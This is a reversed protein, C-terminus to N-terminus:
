RVGGDFVNYNPMFDFGIYKHKNGFKTSCTGPQRDCGAYAILSMSSTLGVFPYDLIATAGIQSVIYRTEGTHPNFIHGNKFWHDGNVAFAASNIEAGTFTYSLIDQRFSAKLVDCGDQYLAWICGQKHVPWPVRQQQSDIIHSVSLEAEPGKQSFSTIYGVFFQTVTLGVDRRQVAYIKVQVPRPPLYPVHILAVPNDFPVTITLRQSASDINSEVETRKLAEPTFTKTEFDFSTKDTSYTWSHLGDETDFRYLEFRSGDHRSKELESFSM